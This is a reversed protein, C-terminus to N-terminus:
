AELQSKGKEYDEFFMTAGKKDGTLTVSVQMLQMDSLFDSNGYKDRLKAYRFVNDSDKYFFELVFYVQNGDIIKPLLSRYSVLNDVMFEFEFVNEDFFNEVDERNEFFNEYDNLKEM